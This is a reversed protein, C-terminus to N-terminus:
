EIKAHEDLSPEAVAELESTVKASPTQGLYYDQHKRAQEMAFDFFSQQEDELTALIRASATLAPHSVKDRQHTLAESYANSGHAKDFLAAIPVMCDLLENAWTKLTTTTGFNCLEVSTDRGQYVVQRINNK